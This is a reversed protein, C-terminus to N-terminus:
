LYTWWIRFEIYMFGHHRTKTPDVCTFGAEEKFGHNTKHVFFNNTFIMIVIDFYNYYKYLSEFYRELFQAWFNSQIGSFCFLTKSVLLSEM